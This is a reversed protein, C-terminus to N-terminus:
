NGNLNLHFKERRRQFVIYLMPILFIGIATATAMGFFLTIGVVFRSNAGAGSAIILPIFGACAAIATMMVARFRTRSGEIASKIVDMGNERAEKAFEVILIANKAALAILTIMAVQAYIDNSLGFFYIAVMSGSIGVVVSLLITIPLMWSEYLAVLFLYSFLFALLFVYVTANGAEKEQLSTGTWQYGYEIPLEKSITEMATLAEGSSKGASASGQIGISRYNNYRSISEPGTAASITLLSKLPVMQGMTNRVEINYIDEKTARDKAEGQINVQWTRGFLNFDNVYLGGLNTQLSLFVDSIPVGLSMAKERNIEVKLQPTNISFLTYVQSLSPNQNAKQLMMDKIKTFDTFPSSMYDLLQYEFGSSNGLGMIPPMEFGFVVADSIGQAEGLVRNLINTSYKEKTTRLSYDKLSVILVTSNSAVTNDIFNLGKVTLYSKVGADEDIMRNLITEIQKAVKETKNLSSGEKLQAQIIFIGQDEQPLFSTPTIKFMFFTLGIFMTIIFISLRPVKSLFKIKKVYRDRTNDIFDLIRAMIGKHEQHKNSLFLACLVPSLTLANVMSILVAVSITVAFQQYLKGTTGPVFAVPIFVSMLVLTIAVIPATIQEMSKIAADKPSLGEDEILREVNEVVVIADDVVIGIALVLAFLSITNATFGIAVLVAFTGVLSVPIAIMPVITSRWKGLFLYVAFVVLCFAELLTHVVEEMSTIVFESADFVISYKIDNPFRASLEELKKMVLSATQVANSGSAQSVMIGAAPKGNYDSQVDLTQAGLEVRAIDKLKLIGNGNADGTRLIVEGFEEATVLRGQTSLNIQLEQDKPAPQAGIRGVSAILNQTQLAGVVDTTAIKMTQMKQVDLWIRMSYELSFNSVSGVGNIRSLEDIVNITVFNGLTLSDYTEGPSYFAIALLMASSNKEVTIGQAVVESPLSPQAQSIRNQVNVVNMNPDTSLDFTVTLSYSGNNNSSSKMYMMKDVGNMKSEIPQAVSEEVTAANAGPYVASVTVSPPVISPFQEIPIVMISIFGAISIILSIVISMRPHNIFFKGM